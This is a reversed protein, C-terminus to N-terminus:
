LTRVLKIPSGDFFRSRRFPTLDIGSHRGTVMAAVAMGVGPGIGFGHGSLGTAVYFGPLDEEPGIVPVVDPTTEIMGGWSEVIATDKLAPYVENLNKRIKALIRRSPSPNLVRQKEFPSERELDWRAPMALERFFDANLTPWMGGIEQRLAPLFKFAYRFTSPTVPHRLGGRGYAVTYGGDQRRRIAIRRDFSQGNLIKPGPATRAVTGRIKLQPLSIGLTRCFMSTWAGAACVVSSTRIRGHETVVSSVRGGETELGRVACGTVIIAGLRAAARAFAPAAKHPEARGDSATYLAGPWTRSMNEFHTALETADIVRTDLEYKRAMPLWREYREVEEQSAALYYCGGETYGVDEGTEQEFSRWIRHSAIMMPLEREDRAQKRIWGWNRGSQEGAIHGKECLVVDVGDKALFWATATGIIGGGIVVVDASSPITDPPELPTNWVASVINSPEGATM